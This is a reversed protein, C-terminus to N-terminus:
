VAYGGLLGRRAQYGQASVCINILSRDLGYRVCNCTIMAYFQSKAYLQIFFDDYKELLVM